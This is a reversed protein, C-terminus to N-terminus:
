GAGFTARICEAGTILCPGGPPSGEIACRSTNNILCEFAPPAVVDPIEIGQHEAWHLVITALDADAQRDPYRPDGKASAVEALLALHARDGISALLMSMMVHVNGDLFDVRRPMSVAGAQESGLHRFPSISATTDSALIRCMALIERQEDDTLAMLFGEEPTPAPAARTLELLRDGLALCRNWRDRRDALGTLGGNISRTAGEIDRNDAQTNLNPRAVLWYWVAGLFGYKPTELEPPNDVFFTATPVYGQSHAWQSLRSYNGRGTIQLPGRGMFREGDGPNVNGLEVRGEYTLQQATPGWLERFYRYGGSEHGTQALFMAARNVTTCQARVLAESVYPLLEAFRQRAVTSPASAAILTDLADPAAPSPAPATPAAAAATSPWAYAKPPILTQATRWTIWGSFPSFGPDGVFVAREGDDCFGLYTVYHWITGGAPYNLRPSGKAPQPRNNAPSVWNVVLGYGANISRILHDWLADGQAQTPPDQHLPM